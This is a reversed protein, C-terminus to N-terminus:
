YEITMALITETDDDAFDESHTTYDYVREAYERNGLRSERYKILESETIPNGNLEAYKIPEDPIGNEYEAFLEDIDISRGSFTIIHESNYNGEFDSLIICQSTIDASM